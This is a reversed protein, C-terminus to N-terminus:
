GRRLEDDSKQQIIKRVEAAPDNEVRCPGRTHRCRRLNLGAGSLRLLHRRTLRLMRPPTDHPAESM